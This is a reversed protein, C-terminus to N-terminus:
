NTRMFPGNSESGLITKPERDWRPPLCPAAAPLRNGWASHSQRRPRRGTTRNPPPVSRQHQLHQICPRSQTNARPEFRPAPSGCHRRQQSNGGRSLHNERVGNSTIGLPQFRPPAPPALATRFPSAIHIKATQRNTDRPPTHARRFGKLCRCNREVSEAHILGDASGSPPGYYRTARLNTAPRMGRCRGAVFSGHDQPNSIIRSADARSSTATARAHIPVM